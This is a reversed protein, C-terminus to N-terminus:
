RPRKIWLKGNKKSMLWGREIVLDLLMKTLRVDELCYDVVQGIKGQQWLVPALAGNGSKKMGLNLEAMDDLSYGVHSPYSFEPRLGAALWIEILLDYCFPEDFAMGNAALLKNDFRINNFGVLPFRKKAFECFEAFNDKLFVRYRHDEYDYACICSISMNTHDDWGSCYEIGPIQSEGRKSIAKIIECDYILM